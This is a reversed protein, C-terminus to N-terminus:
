VLLYIQVSLPTPIAGCPPHEIFHFHAFTHFAISPLDHPLALPLYHCGDVNWKQESVEM